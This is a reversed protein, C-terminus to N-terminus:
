WRYGGSPGAPGLRELTGDIDLMDTVPRRPEDVPEPSVHLPRQLELAAYALVDVQDDHPDNLGTFRVVEELFPGVWPAKDLLFLQGSEARILAPTARPLKGKGQPLVEKVAPMGPLRRAQAVLAQQFGSAEFVVYRPTYRDCLQKLRPVIAELGMRERVMDLVLLDNDPTVVFTGIATFDATEKESAAPDVVIFSWTERHDWAKGSDLTYVGGKDAFARFWGRKFLNGEPLIPSQQYMAEFWFQGQAQRIKALEDAPYREPWLAEGPRRGLLDGEEALAALNLVEWREGGENAAALLRGALDDVHWRTMILIVAGGPELRTYATSVFWHWAAERCNESFAEEANKIPDDIILLDAGRGTIPGGVGATIMGGTRGALDWRNAAKSDQRVKVGFLVQGHEELVDRAKRGWTAAFDAEYSALIVRREPQHGLFWAPFFQSVLMSKGHRPPMTIMLRRCRGGAVDLLRRNLLNLHPAAQWKKRTVYWAM